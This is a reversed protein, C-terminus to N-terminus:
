GNARSGGNACIASIFTNSGYAIAVPNNPQVAIGTALTVQAVFNITTTSLAATTAVSITIATSAIAKVIAGQPIGVAIAAQGIAISTADAVTLVTAGSAATATTTKAATTALVSAPEPGLNNILITAPASGAPLVVTNAIGQYPILGASTNTVPPPTVLTTYGSPTFTPVLTLAM